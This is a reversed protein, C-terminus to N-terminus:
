LAFRVSQVARKRAARVLVGAVANAADDHGGPAHDISDQGSRAVKRELGCFQAKLRPIDLLEVRQGNLLPLWEKYLDSKPREAPRYTIGHKRFLERPFEGGYHDGEVEGIGYAELLRAYDEVVSAPSFPPIREQMAALIAKDRERDFYAIALTWADQSGGSPDTFAYYRRGDEKPLEKRGSATALEFAEPDVFSEVDSRFTVHGDMGYESAAAVPDKEFEKAIFRELRPTRHMSLTDANWVLTDPIARGYYDQHARYLEGKRAYPTSGALLLADPITAMGGRLATLIETDPEASDDSRWFAVEDLLLGVVTYGRTTRYSATAIEVTVGTTFEVSSTLPKRVLYPEIQPLQVFGKLYNLIQRAQKRDAAIVPIVAREGPALLPRYDRRIALWGAAVGKNRSKGGRRGVLDWVELAPETPLDQRGTHRRYRELDDDSMPLAFVARWFSRWSEWTPGIMGAADMADLITGAYPALQPRSHEQPGAM